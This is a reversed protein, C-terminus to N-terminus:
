RVFKLHKYRPDQTLIEYTLDSLELNTLRSRAVSSFLGFGNKFSSYTQIEWPQSGNDYLQNYLRLESGYSSVAFELGNIYRYDSGSLTDYHNLLERYFRDSNLLYLLTQGSNQEYAQGGFHFHDLSFGGNVHEEITLVFGFQHYESNKPTRLEVIFDDMGSFTIVRGPISAPNLIGPQDVTMTSAFAYYNREPFWLYLYYLTNPVPKLSTEYLQFSPNAFFGTDQRITDSPYFNYIVPQRPNTWEELYIEVPENWQELTLHDRTLYDADPFFSKALRVQQLSDDMNLICWAVPLGNNDMNVRIENECSLLFLFFIIAAFKYMVM